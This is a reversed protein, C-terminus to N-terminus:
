VGDGSTALHAFNHDNDIRGIEFCMDVGTVISRRRWANKDEARDPVDLYMQTGKSQM